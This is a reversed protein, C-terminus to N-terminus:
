LEESEDAILLQLNTSTNKKFYSEGENDYYDSTVGMEERLFLSVRDVAMEKWEDWTVSKNWQLELEKKLDLTNQKFTKYDAALQSLDALRVIKDENTLCVADVHTALIATKIKEIADNSLGNGALNKEALVASYAEKSSFGLATHDEHYGSDHFLLAYYVITEDVKIGENRCVELLRESESLVDRVHGFNHYPMDEAYLSEAVKEIKQDQM